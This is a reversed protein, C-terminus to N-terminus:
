LDHKNMRRYLAARTLGLERATQSINGHYKSLVQQIAFKEIKNLNYSDFLSKERVSEPLLLDEENLIPNDSLIVARELTHRLERINGPWSYQMLKHLARKSIGTINRHYKAAYIGIFHDALLAIDQGRKRLPPLHIEVTNIRYLLDQRFKNEQTLGGIPCNTACLLRIDIDRPRNSGVRIVQKKELVRLLKAQLPLSLNGIEDLFLTGGSAIEFRGARNEKADTYAGKVHGFLESEFLSESIAGMDVSIFVNGARASKRHLARAVLEKGTGNEGTILVNVETQSIKEIMSFVSQMRNCSGIMKHFKVDLDQSLQRQRHQLRDARKQSRRLKLATSATAILRENEWPKLIFDTAGKKITAVATQVDGFATILIVVAQPDAQLIRDLWFFGERGSTADKTFNMDLLIVDWSCSEMLDPIQRPDDTTKVHTFHNKLLLHAALLVDTDDDIILINGQTKNM